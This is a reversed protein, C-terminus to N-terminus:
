QVHNIVRLKHPPPGAAATLFGYIGPAGVSARGPYVSACRASASTVSVSTCMSVAKVCVDLSSDLSCLQM